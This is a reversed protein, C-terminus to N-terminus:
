QKNQELKEIEEPTLDRVCRVYYGQNSTYGTAQVEKSLTRYHSGGLVKDIPSGTKGQYEIIIKIEENTPLRWNDYKTGDTGVERYTRSHTIASNADFGSSSVAGLQSAIMFAPSVVHDDSSGDAKLTPHAITYKGNTSTIQIVYMRPNKLHSISADTGGNVAQYKVDQWGGWEWHGSVRSEEIYNIRNNAYIKADFNGDSTTKQEAHEAQDRQWDIWTDLTRTSYWGQINQIYELPYQKALVEKYESSGVLKIKFRIYKVALNTPVAAHIHVKGSKTGDLTISPYQASGQVITQKANNKDYYYVEGIEVTCAKSAFFNVETNDTINRMFVLNPYVNLYNLDKTEVNVDDVVWPIIEYQLELHGEANFYGYVVMEHNRIATGAPYTFTASREEGTKYVKYYITGTLPKDTENYYALDHSLIGAESLRAMYDAADENAGRKYDEPNDVAQIGVAPIGDLQTKAPIYEMNGSAKLGKTALGTYPAADPFVYGGDSLTNEPLEIRTIEAESAFGEAKRAFFFHLKNVARLLPINLSKGSSTSGSTGAGTGGENPLEIKHEDVSINTVYRSIPLGEKPVSTTLPKGTETDVTFSQTLKAKQLEEKTINKKSYEGSLTSGSEANALIFLDIHKLETGGSKRPIKMSFSHQSNKSLNVEEKYSVPYAGEDAIDSNFAWVRISHIDSETYPNAPSEDNARSAQPHYSARSKARSQLAATSVNLQIYTDTGSSITGECDDDTCSVLATIILFSAILAAVSYLYFLWRGLWRVRQQKIRKMLIRKM